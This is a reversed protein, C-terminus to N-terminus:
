AEHPANAGPHLRQMRWTNWAARADALRVIWAEPLREAWRRQLGLALACRGAASLPLHWRPVDLRVFGNAVKFENLGRRGWIGYNLLQSGRAASREVVQALLANTPSKDRHALKAVMNMVISSPGCHTVKAFGVLEAGLWAGVFESRDMFTAHERRLTALSKGYHRNAKGQRLPSEDYIAQIARVFADDFDVPGTRIGCRASKRLRNRPKFTLQHEFWHAYSSLPLVALPDWSLRAGPMQAVCADPQTAHLAQVITLLDIRRGCDHLAELLPTPEPTAVFYEDALQATRLMCGELRLDVGAAHLLRPERSDARAAVATSLGTVDSTSM